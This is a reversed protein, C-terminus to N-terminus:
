SVKVSEMVCVCVSKEGKGKWGEKSGREGGNGGRVCILM